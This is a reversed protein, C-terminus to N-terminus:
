LLLEHTHLDLNLQYMSGSMIHPPAEPSLRFSLFSCLVNHCRRCGLGADTCLCSRAQVFVARAQVLTVLSTYSSLESTAVLM